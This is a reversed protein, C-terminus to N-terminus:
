LNSAKKDKEKQDNVEEKSVSVNDGYVATVEASAEASNAEDIVKDLNVNEISMKKDKMQLNYNYINNRTEWRQM